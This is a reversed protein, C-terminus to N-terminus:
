EECITWQCDPYTEQLSEVAAEADELNSFKAHESGWCGDLSNDCYVQFTRSIIGYAQMLERWTNPCSEEWVPDGNTDAVKVGNFDYLRITWDSSGLHDPHEYTGLYKIENIGDIKAQAIIGASNIDQIKITNM